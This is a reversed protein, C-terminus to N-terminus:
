RCGEKIRDMIAILADTEYAILIFAAIGLTVLLSSVIAYAGDSIPTRSM